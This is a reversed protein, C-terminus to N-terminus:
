PVMFNEATPLLLGRGCVGDAVRSNNRHRRSNDGSRKELEAAIFLFVGYPISWISRICGGGTENLM